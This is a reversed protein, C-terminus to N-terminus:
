DSPAVPPEQPGKSSRPDVGDGERLKYTVRYAKGRKVELTVRLTQHKKYRFEVQHKGSTLWMPYARSDFDRAQGVELGDVIVLAKRPTVHLEVPAMSRPPVHPHPELPTLILLSALALIRMRGAEVM